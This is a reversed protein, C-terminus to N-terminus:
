CSLTQSFTVKLLNDNQCLLMPDFPAEQPELFPTPHLPTPYDAAPSTMQKRSGRPFKGVQSSVREIYLLFHFQSIGLACCCLCRNFAHILLPELLAEGPVAQGHLLCLNSGQDTIIGHALSCSLRHAVVISDTSQLLPTM